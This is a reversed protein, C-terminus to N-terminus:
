YYNFKILCFNIQCLLIFWNTKKFHPFSLKFIINLNRKTICIILFYDFCFFEHWMLGNFNITEWDWHIPYTWFYNDDKQAKDAEIWGMRFAIQPVYRFWYITLSTWAFAMSYYDAYFSNVLKPILGFFIGLILGGPIIYLLMVLIFHLVKRDGFNWRGLMYEIVGLRKEKHTFSDKDFLLLAYMIGMVANGIASEAGTRGEIQKLTYHQNCITNMRYLFYDGLRNKITNNEYEIIPPIMMLIQLIIIIALYMQKKRGNLLTSFLCFVMKQFHFKYLLAFAFGYTISSFVHDGSHSGLYFRSLPVFIGFILPEALYLNRPGTGLMDCIVAWHLILIIWCHGSPFGYTYECKWQLQQVKDTYWTPRPDAFAMKGVSMIYTNLAVYWILVFTNAKRFTFLILMVM